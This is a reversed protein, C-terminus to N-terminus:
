FSFWGKRDEVGSLRQKVYSATITITKGAMEPADFSIQEFVNEM